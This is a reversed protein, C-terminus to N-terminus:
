RQKSARVCNHSVSWRIVRKTWEAGLAHASTEPKLAEGFLSDYGDDITVQVSHGNRTRIRCNAQSHCADRGDARRRVYKTLWGLDPM